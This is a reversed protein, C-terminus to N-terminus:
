SIGNKRKWNEVFKLKPALNSLLKTFNQPSIKIMYYVVLLAELVSDPILIWESTRFFRTFDVLIWM